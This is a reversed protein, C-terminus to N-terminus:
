KTHAPKSNVTYDLSAEFEQLGAEAKWVSPKCAHAM